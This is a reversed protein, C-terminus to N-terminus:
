FSNEICIFYINLFYPLMTDYMTPMNKREKHYMVHLTMKIILPMKSVVFHPVDSSLVHSKLQKELNIISDIADACMIAGSCRVFSPM